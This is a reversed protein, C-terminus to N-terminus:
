SAGGVASYPVGGLVLCMNLLADSVSLGDVMEVRGEATKFICQYGEAKRGFSVEGKLNMDDVVKKLLNTSDQVSSAFDPASSVKKGKGTVFGGDEERWGLITKAALRNREEANM